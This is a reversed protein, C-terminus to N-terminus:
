ITGTWKHSCLVSCGSSPLSLLDQRLGFWLCAGSLSPSCLHSPSAPIARREKHMLGWAPSIKVKTLSTCLSRHPLSGNHPWRHLPWGETRLTSETPFSIEQCTPYYPWPSLFISPYRPRQVTTGRCRPSLVPDVQTPSKDDGTAKGSPEPGRGAEDM